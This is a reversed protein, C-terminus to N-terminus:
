VKHADFETHRLTKGLFILEGRYRRDGTTSFEFAYHREVTLFHKRLFRLRIKRLVVSQDLLLLNQKECQKAAIWRAQRSINLHQWLLIALVSLAGLLYIDYINM